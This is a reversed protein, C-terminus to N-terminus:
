YIETHGAVHLPPRNAPDPQEDAQVRATLRVTGAPPAAYRPVHGNNVGIWGRDILVLEGNTSRLPTLVEYSPQGANTRLRALTELKPLYHGTVTVKHWLQPPAPERNAPLFQQLPVAPTHESAEIAHNQRENGANRGFQWPSLFWFCAGAFVLVAAVLALWGPRLLFKLRRM